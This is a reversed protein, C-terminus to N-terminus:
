SSSWCIRDFCTSTSYFRGFNKKWFFCMINRERFVLCSDSTIINRVFAKPFSSLGNLALFVIRWWHQTATDPTPHQAALLASLVVPIIAPRPRAASCQPLRHADEGAASPFADKTFLTLVMTTGRHKSKDQIEGLARHLGVLGCHLCQEPGTSSHYGATVKKRVTAM